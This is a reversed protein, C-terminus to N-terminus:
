QMNIHQLTYLVKDDPDFFKLHGCKKTAQGRQCCGEKEAVEGRRREAVGPYGAEGSTEQSGGCSSWVIQVTTFALRFLFPELDNDNLPPYIFIAKRWVEETLRHRFGQLHCRGTIASVLYEVLNRYELTACYANHAREVRGLDNM